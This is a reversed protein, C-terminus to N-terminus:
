CMLGDELGLDLKFELGLKLFYTVVASVVPTTDYLLGCCPQM